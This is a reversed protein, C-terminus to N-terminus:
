TMDGQVLDYFGANDFEQRILVTILDSIVPIAGEPLPEKALLTVTTQWHEAEERTTFTKTQRFDGIRVEARFSIVGRKSTREQINM